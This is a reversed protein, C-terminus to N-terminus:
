DHINLFFVLFRTGKIATKLDYVNMDRLLAKFSDVSTDGERYYVCVHDPLDRDCNECINPYYDKLRYKSKPAITISVDEATLDILGKMIQLEKYTM